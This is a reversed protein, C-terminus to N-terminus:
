KQLQFRVPVSLRVRVPKKRQEGPKFKPLLKLVRVAEKDLSPDIPRVVVVDVVSGDTNVVFSCTVRGEIGNEQAIPPYQTHDAIWKLLAADGGPFEPQQEVVVFIEDTIPMEEIEDPVPPLPREVAYLPDYDTPMIDVPDVEIEDTVINLVDPTKIVETEVPPPPLLDQVTPPIEEEGGTPLVGIGTAVSIDHEGWEFGVFLVALAVVLGMLYHLSKGKELDAKLNKKVEM